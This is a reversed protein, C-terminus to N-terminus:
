KRYDKGNGITLMTGINKQEWLESFEPFRLPPVNPRKNQKETTMDNM